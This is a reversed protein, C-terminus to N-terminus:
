FEKLGPKSCLMNLATELKSKSKVFWSSGKSLLFAATNFKESLIAAHLPTYDDKASLIDIKAGRSLLKVVEDEKGEAAANHLPALGSEKDLANVDSPPEIKVEEKLPIFPEEVKTEKLTKAISRVKIRLLSNSVKYTREEFFKQASQFVLEKGFEQVLDDLQDNLTLQHIIEDWNKIVIIKGDPLEYDFDCQIVNSGQGPSRQQIVPAQPRDNSNAISHYRDTQKSQPSNDVLEQIKAQLGAEPRNDIFQLNTTTTPQLEPSSNAAAKGTSGRHKGYHSQM